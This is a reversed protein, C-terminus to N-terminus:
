QATSRATADFRSATEELHATLDGGLTILREVLLSWEYYLGDYRHRSVGMWEEDMHELSEHITPLTTNQLQENLQLFLQSLDRLRDAHAQVDDM